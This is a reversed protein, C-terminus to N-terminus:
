MKHEFQFPVIVVTKAVLQALTASSTERRKLSSGSPVNRFAQCLRRVVLRSRMETLSISEQTGSFNGQPFPALMFYSFIMCSVVPLKVNAKTCRGPRMRTSCLKKGTLYSTFVTNDYRPSLCLSPPYGLSPVRHQRRLFFIHFLIAPDVPTRTKDPFVSHARVLFIPSRRM